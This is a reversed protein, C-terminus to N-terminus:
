GELVRQLIQEPAIDALQNTAAKIGLFRDAQPLVLAPDTAGLLALTYVQLAVALQMTVSKTCIVLNASAIMAALKGVNNPQSVKLGPCSQSLASIWSPNEEDQILLIPIDPQKQQFEQIVKQWSAIPYADSGHVLVYGNLTLRRREAEAWDQDVKPIRIALEPCPQDIDLGQLLDHYVQAAYQNSNLPVTNTLFVNGKGYGVRRPIGSLWLLLALGSGGASLVAEYGRDRLLGLLNAWDAPSNRDKYDFTLVENVSRSLRYAGKAQPEVVVDIEADPYRQKLDDLTPFFLIQQDIGGPVLAVVQM